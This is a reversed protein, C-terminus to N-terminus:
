LGKSSKKCQVQGQRSFDFKLKSAPVSITPEGVAERGVAGETPLQGSHIGQSTAKESLCDMTMTRGKCSCFVPSHVHM